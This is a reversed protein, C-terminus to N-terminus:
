TSSTGRRRLCQRGKIKSLENKAEVLNFVSLFKVEIISLTKQFM